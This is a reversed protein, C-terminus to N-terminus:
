SLRTLGGGGGGGTVNGVPIVLEMGAFILDPNNGITEINREWIARWLSYDGLKMKAIGSLTDGQQVIYVNGQAPEPRAVSPQPKTAAGINTDHTLISPLPQVDGTLRIEATRASTLELTYWQDGLEHARHAKEFTEVSFTDDIWVGVFGVEFEELMQFRIIDPRGKAKTGVLIHTFVDAWDVPNIMRTAPINVYTPDYTYPFFSTFRIVQPKRFGPFVTEGIGLTFTRSYEGGDNVNIEEPVVPLEYKTGNPLQIYMHIQSM